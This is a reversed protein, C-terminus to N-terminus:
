KQYRFTYKLNIGSYIILLQEFGNPKIVEKWWLVVYSLIDRVYRRYYREPILFSKWACLKLFCHHQYSHYGKILRLQYKCCAQVPLLKRCLRIGYLTLIVLHIKLKRKKIRWFHPIIPYKAFYVSKLKIIYKPTKALFITVSNWLLTCQRKTKYWFSFEYVTFAMLCSQSKFYNKWLYQRQIISIEWKFAKCPMFLAGCNWNFLLTKAWIIEGNALNTHFGCYVSYIFLYM